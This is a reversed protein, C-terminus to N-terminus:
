GLDGGAVPIVDGTIYSAEFGPLHDRFLGFSDHLQL